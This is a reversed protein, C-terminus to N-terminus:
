LGKPHALNIVTANGETANGLSYFGADKLWSLLTASKLGDLNLGLQPQHAPRPPCAPLARTLM